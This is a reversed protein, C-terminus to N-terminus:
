KQLRGPFIMEYRSTEDYYHHKLHNVRIRWGRKTKPRYNCHCLFHVWEYACLMTFLGLWMNSLVPSVMLFVTVVLYMWFVWAEPVGTEPTPDDHHRKHTKHFPSWRAIHMQEHFWAELIVYSALGIGLGVSARLPAYALWWLSTLALIWIPILWKNRSALFRIFCDTLTM